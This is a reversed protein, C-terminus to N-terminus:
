VSYITPLTLHTYSVASIIPAINFTDSHQKYLIIRFAEKGLFNRRDTRLESIIQDRILEFLSTGDPMGFQLSTGAGILLVSNPDTISM